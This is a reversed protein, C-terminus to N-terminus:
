RPWGNASVVRNIEAQLQADTLCVATYSDSCGNAPYPNTDVFSGAFTSSYLIDGSTTDYYQTDSFYVNSSKGSDAAVNQFYGDIISEYGSSVTFGAPIWYIAYAANTHMVPGKHYTLNGGSLTGKNALGHVPVVGLVNGAPDDPTPRDALAAGALAVALLAASLGAIVFRRMLHRRVTSAVSPLLM